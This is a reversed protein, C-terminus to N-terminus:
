FRYLEIRLSAVGLGALAGLFLGIYGGAAFGILMLLIGTLQQIRKISQNAKIHRQRQRIMRERRKLKYKESLDGPNPTPNPDNNSNRSRDTVRGHTLNFDPIWSRPVEQGYKIRRNREESTMINIKPGELAKKRQSSNQRDGIGM